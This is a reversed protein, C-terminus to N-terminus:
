ANDFSIKACSANCDKTESGKELKELCNTDNGTLTLNHHFEFSDFTSVGYM